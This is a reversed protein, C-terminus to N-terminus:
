PQAVQQSSTTLSLGSEVQSSEESVTGIQLTPLGTDNSSLDEEKSTSVSSTTGISLTGLDEATGNAKPTLSGREITHSHQAVVGPPNVLMVDECVKAYRSKPHFVIGQKM